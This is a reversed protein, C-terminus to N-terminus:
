IMLCNCPSDQLQKQMNKGQPYLNAVTKIAKDRINDLRPLSTDTHRFWSEITDYVIGERLAFDSVTFAPAKIRQLVEDLVLIGGVIIDGRKADLGPIKLRKKISEADLVQKRIEKFSDIPIETGNLRERKEGKKELVMSTVSTITGSSGVVLFPKLKEIQPLFASLM